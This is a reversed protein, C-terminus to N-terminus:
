NSDVLLNGNTDAYVVVPTIGDVSSTAIWTPIDNEDHLANAPGFDTGTTNNSVKLGHTSPDAKVRIIDDGNASSACTISSVSNEDKLANAM